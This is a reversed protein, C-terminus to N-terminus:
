KYLNVIIVEEEEQMFNFIISLRFIGIALFSVNFSSIINDSKFSNLLREYRQKIDICLEFTVPVGTINKKIEESKEDIMGLVIFRKEHAFIYQNFNFYKLKIKSMEIM